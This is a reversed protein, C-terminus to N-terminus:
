KKNRSVYKKAIAKWQHWNQKHFDSLDKWNNIGKSNLSTAELEDLMGIDGKSFTFCWINASSIVLGRKLGM